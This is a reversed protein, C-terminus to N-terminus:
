FEARVLRVEVADDGQGFRTYCPFPVGEAVAFEMVEDPTQDLELKMVVCEHGAIQETSEMFLSGMGMIRIPEQRVHIDEQGMMMPLMMFSPGFLMMPGFAFMGLASGGFAVEGLEAASAVSQDITMTTVADYGDASAQIAIDITVVQADAGGTTLELTYHQDGEPFEFPTWEFALAGGVTTAVVLAVVLGLFRPAFSRCPATM